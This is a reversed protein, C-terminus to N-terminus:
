PDCSFRQATGTLQTTNQIDAGRLVTMRRKFELSTGSFKGEWVVWITDQGTVTEAGIRFNGNGDVGGL